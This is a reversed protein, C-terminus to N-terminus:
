NFYHTGTSDFVVVFPGTKINQDHYDKGISDQDSHLKVDKVFVLVRTVVVSQIGVASPPAGKVFAHDVDSVAMQSQMTISSQDSSVTTSSSCGGMALIGSLLIISFSIYLTKM